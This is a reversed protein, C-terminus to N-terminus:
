NALELIIKAQINEANDAHIQNELAAPVLIDCPLELLEKNSVQQVGEYDTVSKRASKLAVIKDVDLGDAHYIAGRSDSIGLIKAGDQSALIAFNLGANGAGQV